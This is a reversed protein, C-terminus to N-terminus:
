ETAIAIRVIALMTAMTAAATMLMMPSFIGDKVPM